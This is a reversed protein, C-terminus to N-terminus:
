FVKTALRKSDMELLSEISLHGNMFAKKVSGALFDYELGEKPWFCFNM